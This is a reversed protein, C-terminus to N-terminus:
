WNPHVYRKPRVHEAAEEFLKAYYRKDETYLRHATRGFYNELEDAAKRLRDELPKPKM